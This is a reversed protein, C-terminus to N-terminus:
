KAVWGGDVVLTEGMVFSARESALFSVANAIDEPEGLRPALTQSEMGKRTEEDELMDETMATRIVGPAVANVNIGEPGYDIAMERTLNVVGGKSACYAASGGFGVIGAISAINVISGEIDEELMMEVAQKCCLFYGKLNVGIMRDWGEETEETVPASHHIGANNVLIDVKGYTDAAREFLEEVDGSSSTDTEVFIANGGSNQIKEHTEMGGGSPESKIDAVVVNSGNKALKLAIARGIGSSAGTVVATKGDLEQM